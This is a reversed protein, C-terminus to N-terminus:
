TTSWLASPMKRQASLQAEMHYLKDPAQEDRVVEVMFFRLLLRASERIVSVTSNFYRRYRLTPLARLRWSWISPASTTIDWDWHKMSLKSSFHNFCDMFIGNSIRSAPRSCYWFGRSQM